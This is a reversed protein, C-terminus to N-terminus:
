ILLDRSGSPSGVLGNYLYTVHIIENEAIHLDTVSISSSIRTIMLTLFHDYGANFHFLRCVMRTMM